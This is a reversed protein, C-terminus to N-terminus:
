FLTSVFLLTVSILGLVVGIILSETSVATGASTYQYFIYATAIAFLIGLAAIISNATKHVVRQMEKSGLGEAELQRIRNEDNLLKDRVMDSTEIAKKASENVQSQVIAFKTELYKEYEKIEQGTKDKVQQTTKEEALQLESQLSHIIDRKKELVKKDVIRSIELQLVPLVDAQAVLLLKEAKEQPVGLERLNQIIQKESDGERIMDQIVQIINEDKEAM